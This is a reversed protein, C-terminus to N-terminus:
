PVTSSSWFAAMHAEPDALQESFAREEAHRM